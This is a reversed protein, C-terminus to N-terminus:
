DDKLHFIAKDAVKIGLRGDILKVPSSENEQFILSDGDIQFVYIYKNDDTTMTLIDEEISYTGRSLHSSLFDYLFIIEDGSITVQPLLVTETEKYKMVYTGNKVTDTDNDSNCGSLLLSTLIMIFSICAKKMGIM